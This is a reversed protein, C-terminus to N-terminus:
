YHGITFAIGAGHRLRILAEEFFMDFGGLVSGLIDKSITEALGWWLTSVDGVVRGM